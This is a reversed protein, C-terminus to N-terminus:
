LSTRSTQFQRKGAYSHITSRRGRIGKYDKSVFFDSMNLHGDYDDRDLPQGYDEDDLYNGVRDRTAVYDQKESGCDSDEFLPKSKPPTIPKNTPIGGAESDLELRDDKSVSSFIRLSAEDVMFM